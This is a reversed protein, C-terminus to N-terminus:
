KKGPKPKILNREINPSTAEYIEFNPPVEIDADKEMEKM